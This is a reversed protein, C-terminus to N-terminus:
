WADYLTFTDKETRRFYNYDNLYPSYTTVAINRTNPNFMLIRAYGLGYKKDDQFNYMMANVVHGDGYTRSWRASGDNHGCLVLRVTPSKRLIAKEVRRGNTSLSGDDNLFSHVLLVAPLDAYAQICENLWDAYADDNQWGIGCLLIGQEYLPLVWCHRDGSFEMSEPAMCFDYSLYTEYEVKDAGVDHNGAICYFPMSETIKEIAAEANTWHRTYNRNDVIDGTCVVAAANYEARISTAWEAMSLFIDPRKYAYYQTDSFWILSFPEAKPADTAVFAPTPVPTPTPPLTPPVPSPTYLLPIFVETIEYITPVPTPTDTPVPSPTSTGTAAAAAADKGFLLEQASKTPERRYYFMLVCVLSLLLLWLAQFMRTKTM